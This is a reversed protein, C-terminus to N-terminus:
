SNYELFKEDGEETTVESYQKHELSVERKFKLAICWILVHMTGFTFCLVPLTILEKSTSLTCLYIAFIGYGFTAINQAMVAVLWITLYIENKYRAGQYLLINLGVTTLVYIVKGILQSIAIPLGGAFYIVFSIPLGFLSFVSFSISVFKVRGQLTKIWPERKRWPCCCFCM